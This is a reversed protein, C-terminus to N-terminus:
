IPGLTIYIRFRYGTITEQNIERKLWVEYKIISLGMIFNSIKEIRLDSSVRCAIMYINQIIKWDSFVITVQVSSNLKEGKKVFIPNVERILVKRIELDLVKTLVM